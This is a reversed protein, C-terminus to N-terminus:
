AQAVVAYTETAHDVKVHTLGAKNMAELTTKFWGVQEPRGQIVMVKNLNEGVLVPAKPLDKVLLNQHRAAQRGKAVKKKNRRGAAAVQNQNKAAELEQRVVKRIEYVRQARMKAGVEVKLADNAKGVSLKPDKRFLDAM